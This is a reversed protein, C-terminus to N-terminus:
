AKSLYLPISSKSNPTFSNVFSYVIDNINLFYEYPFIIQKDNRKLNKLNKIYNDHIHAIYIIQNKKKLYRPLPGFFLDNFM